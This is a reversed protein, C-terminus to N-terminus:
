RRDDSKRRVGHPARAVLALARALDFVLAFLLARPVDLPAVRPLRSLVLAARLSAGAFVVGLAGLAVRSAARPVAVMGVPALTLAVLDVFPVLISPLARMTLKSRLSVRLNDRGRWLEGWFLASLTAPDGFHVSRLREDSVLRWGRELLKRCLDVDECTELSTDFGGVAAFRDRWVALNGSGLWTTDERGRPRTRMADYLRQIWNPSPPGHYPAGAAAVDPDALTDEVAEIWGADIQHDADVFALLAGRAQQASRNRLESVRLGPMALVRAGAAAAVGPSADTSGNDAVVIEVTHGPRRARDISALCAELRRADDRVPIIFSIRPAGPPPSSAAPPAEM